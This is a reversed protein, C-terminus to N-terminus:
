NYPSYNKYIKVMSHFYMDKVDEERVRSYFIGDPEVVVVPAVACFGHCGTEKVAVQRELGKDRITNYLKNKINEAGKARCGTVCIRITKKAKKEKSRFHKRLLELQKVPTNM